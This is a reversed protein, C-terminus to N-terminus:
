FYPLYAPCVRATDAAAQAAKHAEGANEKVLHAESATPANMQAEAATTELQSRRLGPADDTTDLPHPSSLNESQLQPHCQTSKPTSHM